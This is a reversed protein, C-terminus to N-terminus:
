DEDEELSEEDEDLEEEEDLELHTPEKTSGKDHPSKAYFQGSGEAIDDLKDLLDRIKM